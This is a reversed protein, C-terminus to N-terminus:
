ENLEVKSFLENLESIVSNIGTIRSPQMIQKEYVEIELQFTMYLEHIDMHLMTKIHEFIWSIRKTTSDCHYDFLPEFEAQKIPTDNMFKYLWKDGTKVHKIYRTYVNMRNHSIVLCRDLYKYVHYQGNVPELKFTNSIQEILNFNRKYRSDFANEFISKGPIITIISGTSLTLEKIFTDFETM